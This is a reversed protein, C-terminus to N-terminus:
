RVIQAVTPNIREVEEISVIEFVPESQRLDAYTIAGGEETTCFLQEVDDLRVTVALSDTARVFFRILFDVGLDTDRVDEIRCFGPSNTLEARPLGTRTHRGSVPFLLPVNNSDRDLVGFVQADARGTGGVFADSGDGPAWINVDDGPGGLMVDKNPPTFQETGGIMIDNGPGGDLVDDGILGILVDCGDEGRLIDTNDLSQNPDGDSPQILTNNLNDDDRGVLVESPAGCRGLGQGQQLGAFAPVSSMALSILTMGVTLQKIKM